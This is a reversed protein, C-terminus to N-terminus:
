CFHKCTGPDHSNSRRRKLPLRREYQQQGPLCPKRGQVIPNEIERMMQRQIKQGTPAFKCSALMVLTYGIPNPKWSQLLLPLVDISHLGCRM